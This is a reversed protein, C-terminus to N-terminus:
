QRCGGGCTKAEPGKRKSTKPTPPSKMWTPGAWPVHHLGVQAIHRRHTHTVCKSRRTNSSHLCEVGFTTCQLLSAICHLIQFAEDSAALEEATRFESCLYKAMHDHLCEPVSLIERATQVSRNDLLSLLKYPFMQLRVRFLQFVVSAPRMTLRFVWSRNMDTDPCTPWQFDKFTQLAARMMEDFATGLFLNLAPYKRTGTDEWGMQQQIESADSRQSLITSMLQLQPQLSQVLAVLEDHWTQSQFLEIAKQIHQKRERRKQEAKAAEPDQTEQVDGPFGPVQEDGEQGAEDEARVDLPTQQFARLYASGLIGHIAQLFGPARLGKTWELWNNRKFLAPPLVVLLRSLIYEVKQKTHASDRCCSPGACYHELAGDQRWEGNLVTTACAELLARRRPQRRPTPAFLDLMQLRFKTAEPPSHPTDWVQLTRSNVEAVLCKRLRNLAQPSDLSLAFHILGSLCDSLLFQGLRQRQLTASTAM